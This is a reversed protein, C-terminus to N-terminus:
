ALSEASLRLLAEIQARGLVDTLEDVVLKPQEIWEVMPLLAQGNQTLWKALKPTDEKKAIHYSKEM